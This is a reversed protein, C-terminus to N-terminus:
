AAEAIDDEDTDLEGADAEAEDDLDLVPAAVCRCNIAEGPNVAEGDVTPPEDWPFTQGDLEAHSERVREDEATQWTYKEIGVSTQRVKNFAANMKSTQDRAILEARSETVDGIHAVDVALDEHRDGETWSESITEALRDFYQEPISTILEVNADVADKMTQGIDGHATLLKRVNVGISSEISIALRDDVSDLSRTVAEFAIDAAVAGVKHRLKERARETLVPAEPATEDQVRPWRPALAAVIERGAERLEAVIANLQFRYWLEARHNPRVPRM